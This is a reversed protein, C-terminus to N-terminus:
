GRLERPKVAVVIFVIATRDPDDHIVAGPTLLEAPTLLNVSNLQSVEDDNSPSQIFGYTSTVTPELTLQRMIGVNADNPTTLGVVGVMSKTMARKPLTMARDKNIGGEGKYTIQRNKELQLVPNLSSAEDVLSSKVLDQLVANPKISIALPRKKTQTKRYYGYARTINSYVLLPILETSRVRMNNYDNEPLFDNNTLLDAAYILLLSLDTPYGTMELIEASKPDIMFDKFQELNAHAAAWNFFQTTLAIYTDKMDLEALSYLEMPMYSLGNLLMSNKMPFRKWAIYCDSLKTVGWIYQDLADADKKKQIVQYEIGAKKMISTFGECFLLFFILPMKAHLIKIQAYMIRKRIKIKNLANILDESMCSMIYDSYNRERDMYIIVHNKKDWAVPITTKNNWHPKWDPNSTKHSEIALRFLEDIETIFRYDGVTFEHISSAIMDFELSTLYGKNKIMSNGFKVKMKKIIEPDLMLKKLSTSLADYKGTRIISAKNYFTTLMVTDKGIKTIPRLVLMHGITKNSGNLRIYTGDFVIPVDFKLTMRFGNEDQLKYTLTKKLNLQDSTDEEEKGVIFVKTSGRSLAAVADDIDSELSNEAYTRDINSFTLQSLAPNLTDVVNSIDKTKITAAIKKQVLDKPKVVNKQISSLKQINDNEVETRVKNFPTYNLAQIAKNSIEEVLEDESMDMSPIGTVYDTQTPRDLVKDKLVDNGIVNILDDLEADELTLDDIELEEPIDATPDDMENKDTDDEGFEPESRDVEDMSEDFDIEDDVDGIFNRKVKNLIRTKAASVPDQQAVPSEQAENQKIAAEPNELGGDQPVAAKYLMKLRRVIIMYREKPRMDKLDALHIRMFAKDIYNVLIIDELFNLRDFLDPYRYLCYLMVSLPTDLKRRDLSLPETGNKTWAPVDLLLYRTYGDFSSDSLLQVMYDIFSECNFRVSRVRRYQLFLQLWRSTDVLLNIKRNIADKKMSYQILRLRHEGETKQTTLANFKEYIQRRENKVIKKPGIRTMFRTDTYFRYRDTTTDIFKSMLLGMNEEMDPGMTFILQNFGPRDGKPLHFTPNKYVRLPVLQKYLM